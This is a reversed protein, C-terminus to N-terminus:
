KYAVFAERHRESGKSRAATPTLSKTDRRWPAVDTDTDTPTMTGRHSTLTVPGTHPTTDYDWPAIDTDCAWSATDTNYDQLMINTNCCATNTNCQRLTVDTNCAWSTTDTNYDQLTVDTNCCTTNTNCAWHATDHQLGM